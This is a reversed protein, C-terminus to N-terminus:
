QLTVNLKTFYGKKETPCNTKNSKLCVKVTTQFISPDDTKITKDFVFWERGAMTISGEGAEGSSASALSNHQQLRVEVIRNSAVWQAVTKEELKSTNLAVSNVVGIAAAIGVAVIAMAIVVELLTFGSQYLEKRFSQRSSHLKM